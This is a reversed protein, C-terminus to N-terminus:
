KVRRGILGYRQQLGEAIGGILNAEGASAEPMIEEIYALIDFILRRLNSFMQKSDDVKAPIMGMAVTVIDKSYPADKNAGLFCVENVSDIWEDLDERTDDALKHDGWFNDGKVYYHVDACAFKLAYLMSLLKDYM